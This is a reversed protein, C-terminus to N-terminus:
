FRTRELALNYLEALKPANEEAWKIWSQVDEEALEAIAKMLPLMIELAKEIEQWEQTFRPIAKQYGLLVAGLLWIDSRYTHIWNKDLTKYDSWVRRTNFAAAQFQAAYRVLLGYFDDIEKEKM